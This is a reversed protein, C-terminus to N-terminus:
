YAGRASTVAKVTRLCIRLDDTLTINDTYHVDLAVTEDWDLDSRGSVQWLGTIGPRVALRRRATEDYKEVEQPLAPRPGVLSMEGKVVNILQPLEDLSTKRLLAGVRTIRPDQRMKFLVGNGEDQEGLRHKLDEAEACMTRMKYVKFHRGGQGVRTQTFFGRGPSDLRVLVVLLALLPALLALLLAGVVRDFLVKTGRIHVPARSPSIEALTSGALTSVALRHPAVSELETRVALTAGTGELAWSLRRIDASRIGPSPLVVVADAGLRDVRDSVDDVGHVTPLGFTELVLDAEARDASDGIVSAGVVAVDRRQAWRTAAQGISRRDGVVLVRTPTRRTRLALTTLFLVVTAITAILLAQGLAAERASGLVVALGVAGFPVAVLRTSAALDPLGSGLRANNTHLQVFVWSALVGLVVPLDAGAVAAAAGGAFVPVLLRAQVDLLRRLSPPVAAAVRERLPLAVVNGGLAEEDHRATGERAELFANLTVECV